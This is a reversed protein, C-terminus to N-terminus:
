VCTTAQILVVNAHSNGCVLGFALTTFYNAICFAGRQLQIIAACLVRALM